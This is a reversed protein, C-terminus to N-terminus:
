ASRPMRERLQFGLFANVTEPLAFWPPVILQEDVPTEVVGPVGAGQLTIVMWEPMPDAAPRRMAAERENLSLSFWWRELCGDIERKQM